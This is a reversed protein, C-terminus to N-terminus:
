PADSEYRYSHLIEPQSSVKLEKCEIVAGPQLAQSYESLALDVASQEKDAVVVGGFGWGNDDITVYWLKLNRAIITPGDIRPTDIM